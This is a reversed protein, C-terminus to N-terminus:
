ARNLGLREKKFLKEMLLKQFALPIRDTASSLDFSFLTRKGILRRLPREQDFTGDMPIRRLLSMSWDHAPRLLNFLM